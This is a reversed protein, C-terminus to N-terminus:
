RDDDLLRRAGDDLDDFQGSRVARVFLVLFAAALTVSLPLLVILIDM